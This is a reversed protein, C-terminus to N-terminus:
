KSSAGLDYSDANLRAVYQAAERQAEYFHCYLMGCVCVCGHLIHKKTRCHHYLQEASITKGDEPRKNVKAKRWEM